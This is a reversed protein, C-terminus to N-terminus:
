TSINILLMSAHYQVIWTSLLFKMHPHCGNIFLYNFFTFKNSIWLSRILNYGVQAVHFLQLYHEELSILFPKRFFKKVFKFLPIFFLLTFFDSVAMVAYKSICIFTKSYYKLSTKLKKPPTFCFTFSIFWKFILQSLHWFLRKFTTRLMKLYFTSNSLIMSFYHYQHNNPPLDYEYIRNM